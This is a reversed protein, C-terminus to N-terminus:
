DKISKKRHYQYHGKMCKNRYYRHNPGFIYFPVAYDWAHGRYCRDIRVNENARYGFGFHAEARGGGAILACFGALLGILSTKM